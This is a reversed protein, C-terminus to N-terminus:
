SSACSACRYRTHTANCARECEVSLKPGVRSSGDRRHRPGQRMTTGIALSTMGVQVGHQAMASERDDISGATM